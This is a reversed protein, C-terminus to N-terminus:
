PPNEQASAQTVCPSYSCMYFAVDQYTQRPKNPNGSLFIEPARRAAEENEVWLAVCSPRISRHYTLPLFFLTAIFGTDSLKLVRPSFVVVCKAVVAIIKLKLLEEM